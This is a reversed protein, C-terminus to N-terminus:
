QRPSTAGRTPAGADPSRPEPPKADPAASAAPRNDPFTAGLLADITASANSGLQLRAGLWEVTGGDSGGDVALKRGEARARVSGQVALATSPQAPPVPSMLLEVQRNRPLDVTALVSKVRAPSPGYCRVTVRDGDRALYLSADVAELISDDPLHVRVPRRKARLWFRHLDLVEIEAVAETLSRVEVRAQGHGRLSAGDHFLLTLEGSMTRVEVGAGAEVERVKDYFPLPVYVSEDAARYWVRESARVLVVRDFRSPKDDRGGVALWAPWLGAPRTAGAPPVFGEPLKSPLTFGPLGPYGGFGRLSPNYVPFGRFEPVTTEVGPFGSRQFIPQQPWPEQSWPSSLRTDTVRPPWEVVGGQANTGGQANQGQGPPLTNGTQTAGRTTMLMLILGILCALFSMRYAEVLMRVAPAVPRWGASASTQFVVAPLVAGGAAAPATTAQSHSRDGGADAIAWLM